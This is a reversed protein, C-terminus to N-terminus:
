NGELWHSALIALDYFNTEKNKDIDSPLYTRLFPYTQNEGIDWIEVFDWEADTYTAKAQMEATTKSIVNPDSGNGIGNVDPNVDNDWFCKNYFINIGDDEYGIFGGVFETGAVDSAAYSDEMWCSYPSGISGALGGVNEGGSVTGLAYCDTIKGEYAGALGGINDGSAEVSGFAFSKEIIATGKIAVMNGVLGGVNNSGSVYTTASCGSIIREGYGGYNLGNGLIAGINEGGRVQGGVVHCQSIIGDELHGVLAAINRNEGADINPDVVFLRKIVAQLKGSPTYGSQMFGFLGVNYTENSDWTFNSIINENGDFVGSFPRSMNLGIINFTPRGERGDYVSLDIDAMLKFHADWYNSDAGIEQMDCADYILYPDGEVGSGSWPTGNAASCFVCVTVVRLIVGNLGILRRM